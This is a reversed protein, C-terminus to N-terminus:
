SSGAATLYFNQGSSILEFFETSMVLSGTSGGILELQMIEDGYEYGILPQGYVVVNIDVNMSSITRKIEVVSGSITVILNQKKCNQSHENQVCDDNQVEVKFQSSISATVSSYTAVNKQIHKTNHATLLRSIQSLWLPVPRQLFVFLTILYKIIYM